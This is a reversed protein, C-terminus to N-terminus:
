FLRGYMDMHSVTMFAELVNDGPCVGTFMLFFFPFLHLRICDQTDRGVQSLVELLGGGGLHGAGHHYHSITATQEDGTQFSLLPLPKISYINESLSKSIIRTIYFTNWLLALRVTQVNRAPNEQQPEPERWHSGVSSPTISSFYPPLLLSLSFYHIWELCKM